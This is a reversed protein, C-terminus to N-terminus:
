PANVTGLGAPCELNSSQRAALAAPASPLISSPVKMFTATVAVSNTTAARVPLTTQGAISTANMAVSTTNQNTGTSAVRM